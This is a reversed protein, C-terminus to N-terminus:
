LFLLERELNIYQRNLIECAYEIEQPMKGIKHRPRECDRHAAPCGDFTQLLSQQLV